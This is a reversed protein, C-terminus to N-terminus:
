ARGELASLWDKLEGTIVQPRVRLESARRVGTLVLAQRLATVIVAVAERVAQVGGQQQARFLPLAMGGLDAGLALAKAVDLGTRLGGSAIVKVQPGVARRVSAVAAATPIGWNSFQAGVEEAAGKARLQEVRVWSTGGLGSVDLHKVGCEVLRRAVEPSIGCGTEKVLLRDGYHKALAQITAYGKRFDRDGEPQTLEQGPNLHVALADAGLSDTLKQVAGLGMRAAQVVGLNGILVTSPAVDRVAFTGLLEPREAMARQSGVGFALGFEEAVGALQKNVEGARETGGTMGTVLLPAKLTKGFLPTSLDIEDASLEPMACHVLRVCELLTSNEKPAVEETACLDLHADKRRATTDDPM